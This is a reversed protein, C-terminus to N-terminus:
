QQRYFSLASSGQALLRIRSWVHPTAGVKEPTADRRAHELIIWGASGMLTGKALLRLDEVAEALASYPPDLFCIDARVGQSALRKLAARVTGRVLRLNAGSEEFALNAQILRIAATDSEIMYVERAGRSFAEIGVAGSGAYGDIFVSDAIWPALINFLTERLKDSTPRLASGPLTKLRRGRYQGAIIRM